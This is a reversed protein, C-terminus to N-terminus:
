SSEPTTAVTETKTTQLYKQLNTYHKLTKCHSIEAEKAGSFFRNCPKCFFGTKPVLFEMGVPNSPNFPPLPSDTSSPDEVKVTVVMSTQDESSKHKGTEDAPPGTKKDEVEQTEQREEMKVLAVKTEEEKIKVPAPACEDTEEQKIQVTVEGAAPSNSDGPAASTAPAPTPSPEVEMTSDLPATPTTETKPEEPPCLPKTHPPPATATHILEPAVDSSALGDSTDASPVTTPESGSVDEDCKALTASIDSMGTETTCEMSTDKRAEKEDSTAVDEEKETTEMPVLDAVEGVEDVTVFDSLNFPFDDSEEEEEEEVTETEAKSNYQDDRGYSQKYGPKFGSLGEGYGRKRERRERERREEERREREKRAREDRERERRAREKEWARREREKKERERMEREKRAEREKQERELRKVDNETRQKATESTEKAAKADQDTDVVTEKQEGNTSANSTTRARCKVLLATVMEQTVKFPPPIGADQSAAIGDSTQPPTATENNAMTEMVNEATAQGPDPELGAEPKTDSAALSDCAVNAKKDESGNEESPEDKGLKENASKMMIDKSDGDKELPSESDTIQPTEEEDTAAPRQSGKGNSPTSEPSDLYATIVKSQTNAKPDPKRSFHLPNNHIICPFMKFRKYVSLAMAATALQCIVMSNLVLTKIVTGFRQVLKQVESSGSTTNPVNSIVLLSRWGVPVSSKLPNASGMLLNYLAVPTNFGISQKLHTMKLECDNIKMPSFSHVKVMEEAIEADSVSVLVKRLQTAVIVDSPTGFPEVLKIIDSESWGSEPLEAILVVARVDSTEQDAKDGASGEEAGKDQGAPESNADSTQGAEPKKAVLATLQQDRISLDTSNALAQAYEAKAMCVSAKQGEGKESEEESCPMLIVNNIKGFSGVLDTVEKESADKPIGTLYVLRDAVPAPKVAATAIKKKKKAPPPKTSMKMTMAGPKTGSKVTKTSYQLPGHKSIHGAKSSFKNSDQHPRKLGIRVPPGSSEM